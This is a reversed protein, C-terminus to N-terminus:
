SERSKITTKLIVDELFMNDCIDVSKIGELEKCGSTLLLIEPSPEIEKYYQAIAKKGEYSLKDPNAIILNAYIAIIDQWTETYMYLSEPSAKMVKQMEDATLGYLMIKNRKKEEM